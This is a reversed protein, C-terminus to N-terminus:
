YIKKNQQITSFFYVGEDLRKDRLTNIIQYNALAILMGLYAGACVDELFHQGLYMRSIGVLMAMVLFFIDLLPKRIIVLSLIGYLAFGSTTHGSPFSTFGKLFEINLVPVLIDSLGLDEFYLYPRAEAFYAKLLACVLMVSLGTTAVMLAYRIRIQLLLLIAIIYPVSEGFRTFMAFFTDLFYNRHRNFFLIEAGKPLIAILVVLVLIFLTMGGFYYPNKRIIQIM